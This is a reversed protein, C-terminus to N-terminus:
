HLNPPTIVVETLLRPTTEVVFDGVGYQCKVPHTKIIAMDKPSMDISSVKVEGPNLTGRYFSEMVSDEWRTPHLEQWAGKEDLFLIRAGPGGHIYAMPTTSINKLYVNLRTTQSGKDGQTVLTLAVAVGQPFSQWASAPIGPQDDALASSIVMSAALLMALTQPRTTM